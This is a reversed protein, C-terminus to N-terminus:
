QDAEWLLDQDPHDLPPRELVTWQRSLASPLRLAETTGIADVIRLGEETAAAREGSEIRSLVAASLELRSALESQRINASERLRGLSRGVEEPTVVDTSTMPM